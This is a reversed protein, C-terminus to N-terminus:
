MKQVCTFVSVVHEELVDMVMYWVVRHGLGSRM